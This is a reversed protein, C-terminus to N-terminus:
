PAKLLFTTRCWCTVVPAPLQANNKPEHSAELHFITLASLEVGLTVSSAPHSPIINLHDEEEESNGHCWSQALSPLAQECVRGTRM